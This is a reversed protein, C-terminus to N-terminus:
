RLCSLYFAQLEQMLTEDLQQALARDVTAYFDQDEGYPIKQDYAEYLQLYDKNVSEIYAIADDSRFLSKHGDRGPQDQILLRVHEPQDAQFSAVIASKKYQVMDDNIGHILMVPTDGARIADDAALSAASGFLFRQYLWLSPAQLYILPGMMREGQELVIEMPSNAGAASIVGRIDHDDHLITTVAYGGWSHGYLLLPLDSLGAQESVYTLAADLDLLAQPFGRTSKGESAFSGTSDYAMVRWGQDVFWTIQPLYSDAGGGIGHALVILGQDNTQGYLYGQLRNDGSMFHFLQRPYEDELDQYRLGAMVSEDHREYRPFQSDYVFKTIVLSILSYSLAVVCIIIFTRKFSFPRTKKKETM